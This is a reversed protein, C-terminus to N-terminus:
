PATTQADCLPCTLVATVACIEDARTEHDPRHLPEIEVLQPEVIPYREGGWKVPTASTGYGDTTTM